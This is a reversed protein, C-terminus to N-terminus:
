RRVGPEKRLPAAEPKTRIPTERDEQLRMRDVVDPDRMPRTQTNRREYYVSNVQHLMAPSGTTEVWLVGHLPSESPLIHSEIQELPEPIDRAEQAAHERAGDCDLPAVTHGTPTEAVGIGLAGREAAFGALQKARSKNSPFERKFELFRSARSEGSSLREQLGDLPEPRKPRRM